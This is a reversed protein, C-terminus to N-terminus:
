SDQDGNPLQNQSYVIVNKETHKGEFHVGSMDLLHIMELHAM